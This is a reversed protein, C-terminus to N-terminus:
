YIKEIGFKLFLYSKRILRANRKKLIRWIRKSPDLRKVSYTPKNSSINTEQTLSGKKKEKTIKYIKNRIRSTRNTLDKM